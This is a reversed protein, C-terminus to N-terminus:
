DTLLSTAFLLTLKDREDYKFFFNGSIIQIESNRKVHNYIQWLSKSVHEHLSSKNKVQERRSYVDLGEFTCTRSEVSCKPDYM